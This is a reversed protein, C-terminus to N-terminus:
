HHHTVGASQLAAFALWAGFTMLLVGSVTRPWRQALLRHLESALVTGTLMSPLTGAGFAIMIAAGNLADGSFAAFLLMSYVLGCPLWGWLMGLLAAQAIGSLGGTRRALPQLKLWIRAGFRELWRLANWAFLVRAAVLILLVGSAVRLIIALRSLDLVQQLTAGFLGFLAGAFAYGGLRGAQYVFATRLVAQSNAATARAHMGLASALGGCMTFCHASGAIGAVLAAWLTITNVADPM